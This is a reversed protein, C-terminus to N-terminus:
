AADRRETPHSTRWHRTHRTLAPENRIATLRRRIRLERRVLAVVVWLGGLALVVTLFTNGWFAATPGLSTAFGAALLLFLGLHILRTETSRGRSFAM